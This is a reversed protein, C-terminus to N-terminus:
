SGQRAGTPPRRVTRQLRPPAEPGGGDRADQGRGREPAADTDARAAPGPGATAGVRARRGIANRHDAARGIEDGTSALTRALALALAPMTLVDVLNHACVQRLGARARPDDPERLASWFVEPIARGHIDGVRRVGLQLRELTTLRCDPGRERWRRRAVPLLDLHPGALLAPSLGCRRLRGRLLPLDYSAGNFTVLLGGLAALRAQVAALMATEASLRSLLWQDVRWGEGELAALGVVFAVTGAGHGLGTAEVDLFVPREHMDSFGHRYLCTVAKRWDAAGPLELPRGVLLPPAPDLRTWRTMEHVFGAGRAESVGARAGGASLAGAHRAIRAQLTSGRVVPDEARGRASAATAAVDAGRARGEAGTGAVGEGRARGEAGTTTAGGDRARGDAYGPPTAEAGSRAEVQANARAGAPGRGRGAAPTRHSWLVYVGSHRPDVRRPATADDRAAPDGTGESLGAGVQWTDRPGEGGAGSRGPEALARELRARLGGGSM